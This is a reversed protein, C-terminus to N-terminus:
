LLHSWEAGLLIRTVACTSVIFVLLWMFLSTTASLQPSFSTTTPLFFSQQTTWLSGLNLCGTMFPRKFPPAPLVISLTMTPKEVSPAYFKGSDSDDIVAGSILYLSSILCIYTLRSRVRLTLIPPSSIPSSPLSIRTPSSDLWVFQFFHLCM